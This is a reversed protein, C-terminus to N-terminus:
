VALVAAVLAARRNVQGLAAERLFDNAKLANSRGGFPHRGEGGPLPNRIPRRRRPWGRQIERASNKEFAMKGSLFEATGARDHGSSFGPFCGSKFKNGIKQAHFVIRGQAFIIRGAPGTLSRMDPM